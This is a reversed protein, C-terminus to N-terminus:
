PAGPTASVMSVAQAIARTARSTPQKSVPKKAIAEFLKAYGACVAKRRSLVTKPDYPPYRGAALAEADYAIRDAVFDHIARALDRESATHAKLYAAVSAVSREASAPMKAAAPHLRTSEPWRPEAGGGPAPPKDSKDGTSKDGTSKDSTSKDGTSKDGTSKDGTSKDGTSKTRKGPHPKPTPQKGDEGHDYPNDTSWRYLWELADATQHLVDRVTEVTKGSQGELMWDGRTSIATFGAKPYMALLVALFTFNLLVTRLILRDLWNFLRPGEKGKKKRRYNGWLDWAIPAVPFMLLGAAIAWPLGGNKFVALSSSVWVGLLPIAIMLAIAVLKFILAIILWVLRPGTLRKPNEQTM